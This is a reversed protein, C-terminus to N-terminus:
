VLIHIPKERRDPCLNHIGAELNTVRKIGFLDNPTQLCLIWGLELSELMLPEALPYVTCVRISVEVKFWFNLVPDACFLSDLWSPM